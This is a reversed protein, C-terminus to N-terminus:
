QQAEENEYKGEIVKTFNAAKTLWELDARWTTKRGMLFDSQSVYEFYGRWYDLTQHKPNERWRSLLQKSRSGEWRRMQTLTPLLEHYLALIEQHPCDPLDPRIPVVKSETSGKDVLPDKIDERRKEERTSASTSPETSTAADVNLASKKGDRWRAQRQNKLSREKASDGNHENFRPITIGSDDVLLWGVSIMADAFGERHACKDVLRSTAADVRGDVSHKDAWAWFCFLMGVASFEDVGLIDAIKFVKPHEFLDCRMKIWDGAM